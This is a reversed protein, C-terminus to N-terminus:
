HKDTSSKQFMIKSYNLKIFKIKLRNQVQYNSGTYGAFILVDFEINWFDLASWYTTIWIFPFKNYKSFLCLASNDFLAFIQNELDIKSTFFTKIKMIKKM